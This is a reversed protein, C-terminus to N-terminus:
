MSVILAKEQFWMPDKGQQARQKSLRSRTDLRRYIADCYPNKVRVKEGVRVTAEEAKNLSTFTKM